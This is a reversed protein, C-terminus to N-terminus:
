GAALRVGRRCPIVPSMGSLAAARYCTDPSGAEHGSPRGLVSLLLGPIRKDAPREGTVGAADCFFSRYEPSDSTSKQPLFSETRTIWSVRLYLAM